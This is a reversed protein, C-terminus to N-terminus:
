DQVIWGKLTCRSKELLCRMFIVTGLTWHDVSIGYGDRHLMEPAVYKSTNCFRYTKGYRVKTNGLSTLVPYSNNDTLVNERHLSRLLIHRTHMYVLADSLILVYFKAYGGMM